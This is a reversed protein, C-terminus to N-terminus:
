GPPANMFRTLAELVPGPAENMMAHGAGPIVVRQPMLAPPFAAALPALAKPPTMRDQAASLLLTPCAIRAAADFGGAYANCAQLARPLTAVPQRQLLRENVAAPNLGPVASRGLLSAPAFSWQNILAHAAPPDIRAKDLLAPAVPMPFVSGVLALRFVREPAISALHLAILSGMSHGVLACHEIAADDLLRLTWDALAEITDLAEGGSRGHGPLDPALVNWGRAAFARTQLMWVSHDNGAGHLFVIWPRDPAPSRGGTYAFVPCESPANPSLTVRLDM